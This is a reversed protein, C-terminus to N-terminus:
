CLWARRKGDTLFFEPGDSGGSGRRPPSGAASGEPGSGERGWPPAPEPPKDGADSVTKPPPAKQSLLRSAEGASATAKSLLALAYDVNHVGHAKEVFECNYRALDLLPKAQAKLPNDDASAEWAKSAKAVAEKAEALSDKLTDRWDSLMKKYAAGHCEVCGQESAEATIIGVPHEAAGPAAAVTPSGLHCAMCDVRALFMKSPMDKVGKGGTGAFLQAQLGHGGTHCVTCQVEQLQAGVHRGHQIESHCQFCEVKRATVHWDHMFKSDTFKELKGTDAHCNMCVQRPVEGTGKVSDFHCKWCDVKRDLYPKHNFLVGPAVQIPQSPPEHCATCGAVPDAMREHIHGTFHCTFCVSETVKLHAGQVIQSHCSTCRLQMGRRLSGLHLGHDFVVKEKFLVKGEILRKEHCGERLCSADEVEAVPKTVHLGAVTAVVYRVALVKSRVENQWGPAFHCKICSVQNHNSAKWSAVYPEMIHCSNCFAPTSSYYLFGGSGALFLGLLVLMVVLFRRVLLLGRGEERRVGILRLGGLILRRLPGTPKMAAEGEAREGPSHRHGPACAPEGSFAFRTRRDGLGGAPDGDGAAGVCAGDRGADYRPEAPRLGHGSPVGARLKGRHADAQLQHSDGLKWLTSVHPHASSSHRCAYRPLRLLKSRTGAKNVHMYHLNQTGNRFRTLGETQQTLVLQKDHCSFCLAYADVKFPQYFTEPYPQSLLRPM